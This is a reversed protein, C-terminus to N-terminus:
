CSQLSMLHELIGAISCREPSAACTETLSSFPFCVAMAEVAEEMVRAGVPAAVPDAGAVALGVVEAEQGAALM